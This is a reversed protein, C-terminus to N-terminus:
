DSLASPNYRTPSIVGNPDLANAIIGATKWSIANPNLLGQQHINLRYPIFGYKVGEEFLRNLCAHADNVAEPNSLDFLIPITSDINFESTHTFTIMPDINFKVTTNRIWNVFAKMANINPPILPAYWLLGCGDKAPHLNSKTTPSIHPNRWYAIPLAIENPQGKMIANARTLNDLQQRISLFAKPPMFKLMMKILKLRKSESFFCQDASHRVNSKIDRKAAAVVRKSGYLTGVVTWDAVDHQVSLQHKQKNSMVTHSAKDQPNDAVMALVRTKDMLNIGGVVGKLTSFIRQISSHARELSNEGSFRLYFADFGHPTRALSLTIETVIMNGSQTFIGDLYPGQKWKYCKDALQSESRDMDAISSQYYEGNPLIGAIRTVSSFHDAIPTIGYGRELANSLISCSPGAGTVPVMFPAKKQTLFDFLQQQTVGPQVTCLGSNIDFYTIHNLDKLSLLVIPKTSKNPTASGYGWNQGSSIPHITFALTIDQALENALCVLNKIAAITKVAVCCAIDQHFGETGCDLLALEETRYIVTADDQLTHSIRKVLQSKM